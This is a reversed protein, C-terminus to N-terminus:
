LKEWWLKVTSGGGREYYRVEVDHQGVTLLLTVEYPTPPQDKWADLVRQGDILLRVGDDVLVHFAYLGDEFTRKGTWRVSFNDSHVEPAPSGDGWEFDIVPDDRVLVPTGSLDVNNFYEGRFPQDVPPVPPEPPAYDSLIHLIGDTALRIAKLEALIEDLVGNVPPVPPIPPEEEGWRALRFGYETHLHNPGPVLDSWALMGVGDVMESPYDGWVWLFFPGCEQDPDYYNNGIGPGVHGDPPETIGPVGNTTWNWGRNAYGHPDANPWGFIVVEGIAPQDDEDRVEIIVSTTGPKCNIWEVQWYPDGVQMQHIESPPHVDICDGFITALWERTVTPDDAHPGHDFDYIRVKDPIMKDGNPPPEPPPPEPPAVTPYTKIRDLVATDDPSDMIDFGMARWDRMGCGFILAATVYDAQNLLGNYWALGHDGCYDEVAIDIDDHTKRWGAHEGSIRSARDIGVETIMCKVNPYQALIPPMARLFTATRWRTDDWLLPWDYEHLGLSSGNQSCARADDQLAQLMLPFYEAIEGAKRWHGTNLNGVIAGKGLLHRSNKIFAAMYRDALAVRAPTEHDPGLIFENDGAILDVHNLADGLHGRLFATFDLAAGEPDVTWKTLGLDSSNPHHRYIRKVGPNDLAIQRWWFAKTVNIGMIATPQVEWNYCLAEGSDWQTQIGLKSRLGTM